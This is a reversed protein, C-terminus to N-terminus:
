RSQLCTEDVDADRPLKRSIFCHPSALTSPYNSIPQLLSFIFRGLYQHGWQTCSTMLLVRWITKNQRDPQLNGTVSDRQNNQSKLRSGLYAFTNNAVPILDFCFWGMSAVKSIQDPQGNLEFFAPIALVITMGAVQFIERWGFLRSRSDYSTSLDAGWSLHSIASM